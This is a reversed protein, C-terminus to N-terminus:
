CLGQFITTPFNRERQSPLKKHAIKTKPITDDKTKSVQQLEWRGKTKKKWRRPNWWKKQDGLGIKWRGDVLLPCEFHLQWLLLIMFIMLLLFLWWAVLAKEFHPTSPLNWRYAKFPLPTEAKKLEMLHLEKTTPWSTWLCHGYVLSGM